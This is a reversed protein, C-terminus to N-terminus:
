GAAQKLSVVGKKDTRMMKMGFRVACNVIDGLYEAQGVNIYTRVAGQVRGIADGIWFLAAENDDSATAAGVAKAAGAANYLAGTSRKYIKLGMIEGLIGQALATQNGTKEYNVFDPILLLQSYMTSPILAYRQGPMDTRDLLESAKVIDEKTVAKRTGTLGPLGAAAAAGTTSIAYAAGVQSMRNLAISAAMNRVVNGHADYVSKRKDYAVELLERDGLRTPKTALLDLTVIENGAELEEVPLPFVAPNIVGEPLQLEQPIQYSAAAIGPAEAETNLLKTAMFFDNNPFLIPQLERTFISTLPDDFAVGTQPAVLVARLVMAVLVGATAAPLSVGLAASACVSLVVLTFLTLLLASLRSLQNM